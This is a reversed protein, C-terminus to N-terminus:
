CCSGILAKVVTRFCALSVRTSLQIFSQLELLPVGVIALLAEALADLAVEVLELGLLLVQV